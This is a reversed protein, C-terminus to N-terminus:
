SNVSFETIFVSLKQGTEKGIVILATTKTDIEEHILQRKVRWTNFVVAFGM